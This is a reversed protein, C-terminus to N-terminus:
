QWSLVSVIQVGIECLGLLIVVYMARDFPSIPDNDPNM